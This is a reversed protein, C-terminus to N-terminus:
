ARRAWKFDVHGLDHIVVDHVDPRMKYLYAESYIPIVPMQDLLIQEAQRLYGLRAVLDAESRAQNLLHQYLPDEWRSVNYPNEKAELLELHYIPDHFLASKICGGIEYNGKSLNSFFVNWESGELLTEVGLVQKWASQVVEALQKQGNIHSHSLKIRPFTEPKLGLEELGQAFLARAKEEDSSPPLASEGLLSLSRPLPANGVEQGMLVHEVIEQRNIAYALAKRIAANNFPFRETNCYLWYIRAVEKNQLDGSKQYAPVMDNPLCSFPSGIWDLEGKEFLEEATLADTVVSIDIRDLGVKNADWYAPNKKLSIIRDHKWTEIVFPGNFIAPEESKDYLPSFIPNAILELFYPAPHELEVKLTKTDLAIVGVQELPVEGKKVREANKILYFLDARRCPSGQAIAEKWAQAFQHATVPEGNSWHSPRLTFLYTKKDESIRCTEAAALQPSGEPDLRTIGEFLASQLSRMRYDIGIHPHTSPLDGDQFNIRLLSEAKKQPKSGSCGSSLAICALLFTTKWLIKKYNEM